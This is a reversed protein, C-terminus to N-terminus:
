RCCVGGEETCGESVEMTRLHIRRAHEEPLPPLSARLQRMPGEQFTILTIQNNVPHRIPAKEAPGKKVDVNKVDFNVVLIHSAGIQSLTLHAGLM